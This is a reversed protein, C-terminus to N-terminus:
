KSNKDTNIKINKDIRRIASRYNRYEKSNIENVLKVTALLEEGNAGHYLLSFEPLKKRLWKQYYARAYVDAIGRGEKEEDYKPKILSDYEPGYYEQLREFIRFEKIDEPQGDHIDYVHKIFNLDQMKRINFPLLHRMHNYYIPKRHEIFYFLRKNLLSCFWKNIETPIYENILDNEYLFSIHIESKNTPPRMGLKM